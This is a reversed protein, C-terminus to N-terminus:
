TVGKKYRERQCKVYTIETYRNQTKFM